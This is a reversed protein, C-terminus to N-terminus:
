QYRLTVKRPGSNIKMEAGKIQFKKYRLTFKRPGSKIKM